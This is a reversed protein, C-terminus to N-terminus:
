QKNEFKKNPSLGSQVSYLLRMKVYLFMSLFVKKEMGTWKRLISSITLSNSFGLSKFHGHRFSCSTCCQDATLTCCAFSRISDIKGENYNCISRLVIGSSTDAPGIQLNEALRLRAHVISSLIVGDHRSILPKPNSTKMMSGCRSFSHLM